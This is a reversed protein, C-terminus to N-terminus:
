LGTVQNKQHPVLKWPSPTIISPIVLSKGRWSESLCSGAGAKGESRVSNTASSRKLFM